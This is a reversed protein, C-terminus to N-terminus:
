TRPKYDEPLTVKIMAKGGNSALTLRYRLGARIEVFFDKLERVTRVTTWSPQDSFSFGRAVIDAARAYSIRAVDLQLAPGDTHPKREVMRLAHAFDIVLLENSDLPGAAYV